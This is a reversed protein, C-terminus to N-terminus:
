ETVQSSRFVRAWQRAATVDGRWLAFRVADLRQADHLSLCPSWEDDTEILEVDVEAAYGSEHILKTQRKSM